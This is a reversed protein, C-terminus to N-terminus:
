WLFTTGLSTAPEAPPLAAGAAPLTFFFTTGEGSASEFWIQGGQLKVLHRTINLGLGTGPEAGIRAESSRFFPEFIRGQEAAPIGIGSDRVAVQILNADARRASLTITGPASTYKIANSLLNTLIQVLRVEDAVIHPLNAPLDVSLRHQKDAILKRVSDCAAEVAVGLSTPAPALHLHGSEIQSIDTLDALLTKMLGALNRVARMCEGQLENLPGVTELLLMDTYGAIGTLPNKLEHSVMSVFAGKARNAAEAAAYAAQESDHLRKRELCSEVRAELLVREVPKFLFDEAGLTVCRAISAIDDLASVVVVPLHRLAPDAKMVALAEFGNMVPMMIDLMILDVPQARLLEIAERGDEALVVRHGLRVLQRELVLRNTPVDDVVLITAPQAVTDAM